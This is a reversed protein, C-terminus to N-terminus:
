FHRYGEPVAVGGGGADVLRVGGGATIEGIATVPVGVRAALARVDDTRTASATFLLEYDEGYGLCAVRIAPDADAAARAASSMPVDALRVEAGVGSRECLRGLDAALGDSIDIAANAVDTLACGLEHRPSPLVFRERLAADEEAGLGGIEGTLARLGLGADGITGSVFILDDARAGGRRMESDRALRGFMTASVLLSAARTTDGGICHIRYRAQDDALGAAFGEVWSEPLAPPLAVTLVYAEPEAGMAALDSLNVRLLKRGVDGADTQALFHVGEAMADTTIVVDEGSRPRLLAADDGMDFALPDGEGLPAFIERILDFETRTM